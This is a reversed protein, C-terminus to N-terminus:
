CLGLSVLHAGAPRIVSDPADTLHTVRSPMYTVLGDKFYMHFEITPWVVRGQKESDAIHAKRFDDSALYDDVSLYSERAGYQNTTFFGEKFVVTDPLKDANTWVFGRPNNLYILGNHVANIQVTIATQISSIEKKHLPFEHGVLDNVHTINM